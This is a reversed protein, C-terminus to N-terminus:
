YHFKRFTSIMAELIASAFDSKKIVINDGHDEDSTGPNATGHAIAPVDPIFTGNAIAPKHHIQCGITRLM